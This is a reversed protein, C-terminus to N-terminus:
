QCSTYDPLVRVLEIQDWPAIVVPLDAATAGKLPRL